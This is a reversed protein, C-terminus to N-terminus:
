EHRLATMPDVRAARLAPWWTAALGVGLLVVAVASFTVPDSSAVGYLLSAMLRALVLALLAGIGLGAAIRAVGQSIVLRLVLGPQAGLAMRVGIEPTRETVAYSLVGYVGVAALALALGAFLGLLHGAFRPTAKSARVVDEMTRAAALPVGPDLRRLIERIPAVLAAPDALTTKVVLNMNRPPNGASLHYQAAPRYFKPKVAGTLGNHRVDGVVGVVTLFPRGKSGMRFRRGIPEQGPWFTRAMAENVVVVQPADAVDSDAIFRGAVL